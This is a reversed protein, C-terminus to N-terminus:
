APGLPPIRSKLTLCMSSRNNPLLSKKKTGRLGISTTLVNRRPHLQISLRHNEASPAEVGLAGAAGAPLQPRRLSPAAWCSPSTPALEAQSTKTRPSPPAATTTTTPAKEGTAKPTGTTGMTALTRFYATSATNMAVWLANCSFCKSDCSNCRVGYYALSFVLFM